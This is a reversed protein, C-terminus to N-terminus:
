RQSNLIKPIQRLYGRKEVHGLGSLPQTLLFSLISHFELRFDGGFQSSGQGQHPSPFLVFFDPFKPSTFDCLIYLM